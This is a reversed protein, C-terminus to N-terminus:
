RVTLTTMRRQVPRSGLKVTVALVYRGSVDSPVPIRVVKGASARFEDTRATLRGVMRESGNEDTLTARVDVAESAADDGVRIALSAYTPEAVRVSGRDVPRGALPSQGKSARRIDGQMLVLGGVALDGKFRPVEVAEFATGIAGDQQRRVAVRLMHRGPQLLLTACMRAPERKAVPPSCREGSALGTETSVEGHMNTSVILGEYAKEVSPGTGEVEVAVVVGTRGPVETPVPVTVVRIPVGTLPLASRLAAPLTAPRSRAVFGRRARVQVDPRTTEVSITHFVQDSPAASYYGLVYHVATADLVKQVEPATSNTNVAALGGTEQSLWQLTRQGGSVPLSMEGPAFTYFPVGERRAQAILDSFADRLMEEHPNRSLAAPEVLNFPGGGSVLVIGKTRDQVTKFSEVLHFLVDVTKLAHTVVEFREAASNGVESATPKFREIVRRLQEKSNTFDSQQEARGGVTIIAAFDNAELGDVVLNAITRTRAALRPRFGIQDADLVIALARGGPGVDNGFDVAAVPPSGGSASVRAPALGDAKWFFAVDVEHGDELVRFAAPPLDRVPRGDQDFVSVDVHVLRIESRFQLPVQAGQLLQLTLQLTGLGAIFRM